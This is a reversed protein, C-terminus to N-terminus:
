GATGLPRPLTKPSSSQILMLSVAQMTSLASSLLGLGAACQVRNPVGQWSWTRSEGAGIFCHNVYHVANGM